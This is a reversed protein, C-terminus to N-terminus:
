RARRTSTKRRSNEGRAPRAGPRKSDLDSQQVGTSSGHFCRTDKALEGPRTGPAKIRVEDQAKLM